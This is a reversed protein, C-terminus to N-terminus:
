DATGLDRRTEALTLFARLLMNAVFEESLGGRNSLTMKRSEPAASRDRPGYQRTILM